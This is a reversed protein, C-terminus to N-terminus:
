PHVLSRSADRPLPREETGLPIKSPQVLRDETIRGYFATDISSPAKALHVVNLLMSMGSETVLKFLEANWLHELKTSTWIGDLRVAIYSYANSLHLLREETTM